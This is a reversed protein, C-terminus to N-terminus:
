KNIIKRKLFKIFIIILIFVGVILIFIKYKDYIHFVMEINDYFIYGLLMLLLNWLAIGVFSFTLFNIFKQKGIGAVISIYTRCLPIIRGIMVSANEYKEYTELAYALKKRLKPSKDIYSRGIIGFGYCLT